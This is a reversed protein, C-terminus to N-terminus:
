ASVGEFYKKRKIYDLMNRLTANETSLSKLEDTLNKVEDQYSRFIKTTQIKFNEDSSNEVYVVETKPKKQNEITLTDILKGQKRILAFCEEIMEKQKDIQKEDIKNM